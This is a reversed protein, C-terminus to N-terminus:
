ARYKGVPIDLLSLNDSISKLNSKSISPIALLIKQINLHNKVSSLDSPSYISIGLISRGWLSPNDDVFGAIRYTNSLKINSLLRAGASGAGYILVNPLTQWNKNIQLILDKLFIRLTYSISCAFTWLVFSVSIPPNFIFHIM